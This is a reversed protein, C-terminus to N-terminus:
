KVSPGSHEREDRPAVNMGCPRSHQSCPRRGRGALGFVGAACTLFAWDPPASALLLLGWLYSSFPCRPTPIVASKQALWHLPASPAAPGLWITGTAGAIM